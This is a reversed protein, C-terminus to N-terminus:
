CCVGRWQRMCHAIISAPQLHEGVTLLLGRACSSLIGDECLACLVSLHCDCRGGHKDATSLKTSSPQTSPRTNPSPIM